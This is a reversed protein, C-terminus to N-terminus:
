ESKVFERGADTLAWRGPRLTSTESYEGRLWQIMGEIEERIVKERWTMVRLNERGYDNGLLMEWTQPVEFISLESKTMRDYTVRKKRRGPHTEKSKIRDCQSLVERVVPRTYALTPGYNM